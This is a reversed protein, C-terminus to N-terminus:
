VEEAMLQKFSTASPVPRAPTLVYPRRRRAEPLKRLDLLAALNAKDDRVPELFRSEGSILTVVGPGHGAKVSDGHVV